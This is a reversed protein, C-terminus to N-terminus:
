LKPKQKNFASISTETYNHAPYDLELQKMVDGKKYLTM